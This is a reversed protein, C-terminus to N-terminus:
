GPSITYVGRTKRIKRWRWRIKCNKWKCHNTTFYYLLPDLCTNLTVLAMTVRRADYIANASSCSWTVGLHRLVHLLYVVHYPLFCFVTIALIIYIVRVARRAIKTKIMSIRRAALPYCVLTIGSPLLFGFVLGLLSYPGLRREWEEKAFNEFCSHNRSGNARNTELPGMLIFGLMAAGCVVWLVVCVVISCWSNRVRLYTHPHVTAIYRDVCICTMFCVSLYINAYFLTGTIRCALDGFVWSNGNVHYHIRFPLTCLIATDALALNIIYVSFATRPTIKFIFVFLAALNGPLGLVLALSYVAPFLYYQYGPQSINCNDDVANM